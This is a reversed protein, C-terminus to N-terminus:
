FSASLNFFLTNKFEKNNVGIWHAVDISIQKYKIGAGITTYDGHELTKHSTHYGARIFGFKYLNYEAGIEAETSSFSSPLLRHPVNATGMIKHNENFPIYISTGFKLFSPISHREEIYRLKTGFNSAVLAVSVNGGNIFQLEKNYTAGIDAAFANASKANEFSGLNSNIYRGTLSISLNESILYAYGLDITMDSPSFSRNKIGMNDIIDVPPYYFYRAGISVSHNSSFSYFTGLAFLKNGSFDDTASMSTGIGLDKASFINASSNNFVGFAGPKSINSLGGMGADKADIMIETFMATPLPKIEQASIYQIVVIYVLILIIHIIYKNM